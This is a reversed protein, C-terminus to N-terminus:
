FSAKMAVCTFTTKIRTISLSVLAYKIWQVLVANNAQRLYHVVMTVGSLKEPTPMDHM